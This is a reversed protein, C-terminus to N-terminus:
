FSNVYVRDGIIFSHDSFAFYYFFLIGGDSLLFSYSNIRALLSLTYIRM